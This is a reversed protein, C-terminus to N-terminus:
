KTEKPITSIICEKLIQIDGMIGKEGLEKVLEKLIPKGPVSFITEATLEVDAQAAVKGPIRALTGVVFPVTVVDIFALITTICADSQDETKNSQAAKGCTLIANAVSFPIGIIPVYSLIRIITQSKNAHCHECIAVSGVNEKNCSSCKWTIGYDRYNEETLETLRMEKGYTLYIGKRLYRLQKQPDERHVIIQVDYWSGYALLHDFKFQPGNKIELRQLCIGQGVTYISAEINAFDNLRDNIISLTPGMSKFPYKM